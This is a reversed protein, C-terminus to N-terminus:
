PCKWVLMMMKAYSKFRPSVVTKMDDILSKEPKPEEKGELAQCPIQGYPKPHVKMM